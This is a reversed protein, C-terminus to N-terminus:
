YFISFDRFYILLYFSLVWLFIIVQIFRDKLLLDTPSGSDNEVLAIQLYRLLGALVFLSTYFLRYTGMRSIVEDSLTYMLYSVFIVGMLLSMSVNLFDLSYNKVVKRMNEGSIQKIILDDRRKAIAMFLALLFVMIIIWHSLAIDTAIAGAKIRLVFGIAVILIDLISINKLGLTYCVNMVFYIALVFMFKLNISGALTMGSILLLISLILASSKRVAGSALPRLKKKPHLKDAEIDKYDNLVYITSAVFSFALFALLLFPYLNFRDLQGSFFLPLFLFSNKVWHKVRILRIYEM